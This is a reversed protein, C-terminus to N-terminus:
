SPEPMKRSAVSDSPTLKSSCAFFSSDAALSPDGTRADLTTMGCRDTASGAGAGGGGAGGTEFGVTNAGDGAGLATPTPGDTSCGTGVSDAPGEITALPEVAGASRAVGISGAGSEASSPPM